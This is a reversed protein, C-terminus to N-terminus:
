VIGEQIHPQPCGGSWTSESHAIHSVERKGWSFQSNLQGSFLLPIISFWFLPCGGSSPKVGCHPFGTNIEPPLPSGYLTTSCPLSIIVQARKQFSVRPLSPPLPTPQLSPSSILHHSFLSQHHTLLAISTWPTAAVAQTPFSGPHSSAAPHSQSTRPTPWSARSGSPCKHLAPLQSGGSPSPPTSPLVHGWAFVPSQYSFLPAQARRQSCKPAVQSDRPCKRESELSPHSDSPSAM